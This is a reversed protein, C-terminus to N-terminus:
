SHKSFLRLANQTTVREVEEVTIGKIQAIRKAICPIILPTNRVKQWQKKSIGAPKEPKVYPGDTELLISELPTQLVANELDATGQDSQLLSGGIGLMLGFEERYIRATAADGRFCHCVGGHIRKKYRRLISIANRDANRIHLILPLALKHALQLQWLFWLYQRFRHQERRPHHFDLGLEGIAVVEPLSAMLRITKRCRFPTKRVRTPHIGIAPLLINPNQNHLELLKANSELDIGPEIFMGIDADESMYILAERSISHLIPYNEEKGDIAPFNHDYLRHSLHIHSDIYM